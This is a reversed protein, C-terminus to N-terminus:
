IRVINEFTKFINRLILTDADSLTGEYSFMSGVFARYHNGVYINSGDTIISGDVSYQGSNSNFVNAQNSVMSGDIFLKVNANNIRNFIIDRIYSSPISGPTYTMTSNSMMTYTIRGDSPRIIAAVCRPSGQSDFINHNAISTNDDFESTQFYGIIFQVGNYQRTPYYYTKNSTLSGSGNKYGLVSINGGTTFDMANASRSNFPYKANWKFNSINNGIRPYWFGIKDWFGGAFLDDVCDIFANEYVSGGWNSERSLFLDAWDYPTLTRLDWTANASVQKTPFANGFRDVLDLNHNSSPLIIDVSRGTIIVSTPVVPNVGDSLVIEITDDLITGQLIGNVLISILASTDGERYKCSLDRYYRLLDSPIIEDRM